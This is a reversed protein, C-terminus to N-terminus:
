PQGRSQWQKKKMEEVKCQQEFRIENQKKINANQLRLEQMNWEFRIKTTEREYALEEMKYTHKLLALEKEFEQTENM